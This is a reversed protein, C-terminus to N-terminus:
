FGKPGFGNVARRILQERKAPSLSAIFRDADHDSMHPDTLLRLRVWDRCTRATELRVDRWWFDSALGDKAHEVPAFGEAAAKQRQEEAYLDADAM